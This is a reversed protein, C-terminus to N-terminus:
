LSLSSASKLVIEESTGSSQPQLDPAVEASSDSILLQIVLVTHPWPLLTPSSSSLSQFVAVTHAEELM